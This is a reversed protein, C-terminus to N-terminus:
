PSIKTISCNLMLFARDGVQLNTAMISDQQYSSYFEDVFMSIFTDYQHWTIEDLISRQEITPQLTKPDLLLM